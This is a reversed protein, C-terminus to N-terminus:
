IDEKKNIKNRYSYIRFILTVLIVIQSLLSSNSEIAISYIIWCFVVPILKINTNQGKSLVMANFWILNSIAPIIEYWKEINFFFLNYLLLLFYTLFLITLIKKNQYYLSILLSFFGIAMSIAGVIGGELYFHIFFLLSVFAQSIKFSKDTPMLLAIISIFFASYGIFESINTM